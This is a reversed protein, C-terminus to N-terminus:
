FEIRVLRAVLAAGLLELIGAAVLVLNGLTTNFIVETYSPLTSLLGLSVPVLLAIVVASLKGQATLTRVENELEVRNRILEAIDRMMAAINGGVQRQLILGEVLIRVDEGPQRQLLELLAQDVTFGLRIQDTIIAMENSSPQVLNPVVFEIAQPLSFGAQLSDALRELVAPFQNKFLQRQRRALYYLLSFFGFLLLFALFIKLMLTHILYHGLLAGIGIVILISILLSFPSSGAGSDRWISLAKGTLGRNFLPDLIKNLSQFISDLDSQWGLPKQLIGQKELRQRWASHFERVRLWQVLPLVAFLTLVAAIAGMIAPLGPIVNRFVFNWWRYGSIKLFFATIFGVGKLDM